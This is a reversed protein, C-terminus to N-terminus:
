RGLVERHALGHGGGGAERREEAGQAQAEVGGVELLAAGRTALLAVGAQAVEAEGVPPVVVVHTELGDPLAVRHDEDGVRAAEEGLLAVLAEEPADGAILADLLALGAGEALAPEDGAEAM